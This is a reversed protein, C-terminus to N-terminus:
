EILSVQVGDQMIKTIAQQLKTVIQDDSGTIIKYSVQDIRNAAPINGIAEMGSLTALAAARDPSNDEVEPGFALTHILVKKRATSYGPPSASELAVIQRCITNIESVVTPDNDSLPNVSPFESGGPSQSNYRIQYYSNGPGANNLAAVASHNPVGDTEFIILKAAGRRGLGGADGTPAPSPNFNRLAPNSSFQNYALMLGMSYCTGGMARPTDLNGADYPRLETGPNDITVPPYWLSDTMRQYNRGLPARVRNFRRGQSTDNSSSMPVSFMILSVLDNPHNNKMDDLSARIGLKCAYLPAEHCTGPWWCFQQYSSPGWLNYNGLFDVMTMPGFWFHLRPRKPNDQYNMYPPPLGPGGSTLSSKAVIQPTGWSYDNGYGTYATVVYWTSSDYQWLGLVYDIYDKWFRENQDNLPFQNWFRANISNDNGSPMSDYYLIRGARLRPPFPNPNANLWQFIAQYNIKYNVGASGSPARWNGNSDWLLSNDDLPTTGDSKFFFQRRWDKSPRPDPPWIFFTKGWYRPGQTYGAFSNNSNAAKLSVNDYGLTEFTLDYTSNTVTSLNLLDKVHAAYNSRATYSGLPAWTASNAKWPKDGKVFADGDGDGASQWAVQPTGGAAHQYFDGVVPQRNANYNDSETINALKYTDGNISAESTRQLGAAATNSYHGFLPYVGEPNNTGSSPTQGSAARQGYYPIGFLSGFRMSGSFDLIVAVDRPRHVATAVASTNFNTVGLVRAFGSTAGNYTVTARALTWNDNPDKPLKPSFKALGTDYTYSGFEIKVNGAQFANGSQAATGGPVNASLITNGAAANIGGQGAANMNNNTNPDGNLLRAATMAATDAANQCQTRAVAMMGLDIALAVFGFLAVLCIVALPLVSGRRRSCSTKM